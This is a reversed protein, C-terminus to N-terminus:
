NNLNWPKLTVFVERRVENLIAIALMPKFAEPDDRFEVLLARMFPDGTRLVVIKIKKGPEEDSIIEILDDPSAVAKGGIEVVIDDTLIGGELAASAPRM